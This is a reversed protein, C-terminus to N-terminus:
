AARREPFTYMRQWKQEWGQAEAPDMLKGEILIRHNHVLRPRVLQKILRVRPKSAKVKKVKKPPVLTGNALWEARLERMRHLQVERDVKSSVGICDLRRFRAFKGRRSCKIESMFLLDSVDVKAKRRRKVSASQAKRILSRIEKAVGDLKKAAKRRAPTAAKAKTAM